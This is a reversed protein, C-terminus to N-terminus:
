SMSRRKFRARKASADEVCRQREALTMKQMSEPLEEDKVKALVEKDEKITDVLDRGKNCYADPCGKVAARSAAAGQSLRTANGDQATQNGAYGMRNAKTGYWLYTQNLDANLKIIIEDQPCDIHVVARDQDINFSEGEALQAGEGNATSGKATIAATFRTSSSARRSRGSARSAIISRARPHVARQRRHLDGQLREAGQVLRAAHRGRRDGPRLVRRRRQDHPRVPIRLAQGSRRHAARSPSHLRRVGAPRTNGYEFLAVRLVPTQGDKKAKAFQQVITWLQSKAQDILGDMSNSTDLLIAVDVAPRQGHFPPKKVDDAAVSKEVTITVKAPEAMASAVVMSGALLGAGFCSLRLM